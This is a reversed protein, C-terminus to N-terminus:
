CSLFAKLAVMERKADTIGLDYMAQVKEVDKEIRSIPLHHSPRIVFIDKNNNLRIIEEVTDNYNQYRTKLKEVLHPYDRYFLNFIWSPTPKKRYELPRTLVVIIKDYGLAQCKKLPISDAIGGDLYYQGNIEVMKSVFPMASTARLVEMENFVDDLKVYEAEGTQVNTLTAYFDIKSQRFTEADFPDLSFPLEYFAFDKNVINGTTLLSHWGMYRKDNLYKKNYRLARGYQKAPYNVGFLVGASVAVIGDVQVNETLFVDLVGATFMARMGGGELVLGVKM